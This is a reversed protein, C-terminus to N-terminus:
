FLQGIYTTEIDFYYISQLVAVQYSLENKQDPYLRLAVVLM